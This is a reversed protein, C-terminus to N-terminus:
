FTFSFSIGGFVFSSSKDIPSAIGKGSFENRSDNNIPFAYTFAPIISMSTTIKIPLSISILGDYYGDDMGTMRMIRGDYNPVFSMDERKSYGASASSKLSVNENFEYTHSINLLASWQNYNYNNIEKSITLTPFLITDLGILVFVKRIDLPEPTRSFIQAIFYNVYGSGLQFIGIKKFFSLLYDAQTYNSLDSLAEALYPKADSRDWVSGTFGAYSFTSSPQQEVMSISSLEHNRIVYASVIDEAPKEECREEALCVLATVSNLVFSIFFLRFLQQYNKRMCKVEIELRLM